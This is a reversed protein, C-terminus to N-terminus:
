AGERHLPRAGRGDVERREAGRTRHRGGQRAVLDGPPLVGRAARPQRASARAPERLCAPEDPGADPRRRDRGLSKMTPQLEALFGPLKRFGAAIADRREASAAATDRAEVVFRGVDKRNGALDGVVVDADRVLDALIRNQKALTRLVKDTERLAPSARRIADNLNKGNGAVGAGLEGLIIALRERYPRRLM